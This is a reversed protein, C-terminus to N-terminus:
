LTEHSFSLHFSISSISVLFSTQFFPNWFSGVSRLGAL